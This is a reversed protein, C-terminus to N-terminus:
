NVKATETAQSCENHGGGKAARGQVGPTINIKCKAKLKAKNSNNPMACFLGSSLCFNEKNREYVGSVSVSVGV